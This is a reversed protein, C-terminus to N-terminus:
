EGLAFEAVKRLYNPGSLSEGGAGALAPQREERGRASHMGMASGAETSAPRLDVAKWSIGARILFTEFNQQAQSTLWQGFVSRRALIMGDHEPGTSAARPLKPIWGLASGAARRGLLCDFEGIQKWLKAVGHLDLGCASDRFLIWEGASHRMGTEVCIRMGLKAPHALLRVQPYQRVLEAALEMTTDLSGDDILQVEFRSTLEPLLDLLEALTASLSSQSNFVPLILSLSRSL